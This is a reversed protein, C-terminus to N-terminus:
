SRKLWKRWTDYSKQFIGLLESNISKSKNNKTVSSIVGDFGRSLILNNKSLYLDMRDDLAKKVDLEIFVDHVIRM